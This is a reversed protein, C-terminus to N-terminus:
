SEEGLLFFLQKLLEKPTPVLRECSMELMLNPRNNFRSHVGIVPKEMAYAYGCEFATGTDDGDLLAVIITSKRLNDIDIKFIERKEKIKSNKSARGAHHLPSFIMFGHHQLADFMYQVWNIEGQDFFPGALYILQKKVKDPDLFVRKRTPHRYEDELSEWSIYYSNINECFKAAAISAYHGALLLDNYKQMTSIFVSNYVDGAGITCVFNAEYAPIKIVSDNSFIISGGMGLKVVIYKAGFNLVINVAEEISHANTIRLLERYSAFVCQVKSLLVSIQELSNLDYQLDYFINAEKPIMSLLTDISNLDAPYILVNRTKPLSVNIDFSLSTGHEIFSQQPVIEDINTIYYKTTNIGNCILIDTSLKNKELVNKIYQYCDKGICSYLAVTLNLSSAILGSHIVGGPRCLKNDLIDIYTDGIILLDYIM